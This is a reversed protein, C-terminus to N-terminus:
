SKTVSPWGSEDLTNRAGRDAQWFPQIADVVERVKQPQEARAADIDQKALDERHSRDRHPLAPSSQQGYRSVVTMSKPLRVQVLINTPLTRLFLLRDQFSLDGQGLLTQRINRPPGAPRELALELLHSRSHSAHRALCHVRMHALVIDAPQVTHARDTRSRTERRPRCLVHGVKATNNSPASPTQLQGNRVHLM